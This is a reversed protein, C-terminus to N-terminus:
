PRVQLGSPPAPVLPTPAIVSFGNSTMAIKLSTGGTSNLFTTTGVYGAVTPSGAFPLTPSTLFATQQTICLRNANFPDNIVFRTPNVEVPAPQAPFLPQNCLMASLLIAPTERLPVTAEATPNATAATYIQFKASVPVDTQAAAAAALNLVVLTLLLVKM